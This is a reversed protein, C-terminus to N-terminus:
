TLQAIEALIEELPRVAGLGSKMQARFDIVEKLRITAQLLATMYTTDLQLTRFLMRYIIGPIHSTVITARSLYLWLYFFRNRLRIIRVRRADFNQRIVGLHDHIVQSRPEFLTKWGNIWARTCLDVDEYYFPKYLPLFGGLQLFMRKRLAVSGGSAFLSKLRQGKEVRDRAEELAWSRFKISGRRITGLNWSVTQPTGDPDCVLPSVSFASPSRFHAILPAIFDSTPRVDSNLLIVIENAAHRVGTRVAEAFGNNVAHQVLQVVPTYKSILKVSNDESADDVIIIECNGRYASAADIVSPLNGDLLSEGNYNPIIISV